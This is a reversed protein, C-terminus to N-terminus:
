LGHQWTTPWQHTRLRRGGGGGVQAMPLETNQHIFDIHDYLMRQFESVARSSSGPPSEPSSPCLADLTQFLQWARDEDARIASFFPVLAEFRMISFMADVDFSTENMLELTFRVAEESRRLAGLLRLVHELHRPALLCIPLKGAGLHVVFAKLERLVWRFLEEQRAVPLAALAAIIRELSRESPAPPGQLIASGATGGKHPSLIQNTRDVVPLRTIPGSM